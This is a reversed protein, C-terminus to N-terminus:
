QGPSGFARCAQYEDSGWFAELDRRRPLGSLLERAKARDERWCAIRSFAARNWNDPWRALVDDMAQKMLPWDLRPDKFGRRGIENWAAWFTRVYLGAGDTHKTRESARLAYAHVFKVPDNSRIALKGASIFHLGYSGPHRDIARSAITELEAITAGSFFAHELVLSDWEPDKADKPRHTSLYLKLGDLHERMLRRENATPGDTAVADAIVLFRTRYLRARMLHAAESGPHRAFWTAFHGDFESGDLEKVGPKSFVPVKLSEHLLTLKQVGSATRLDETLYRRHMDELEDFKQLNFRSMALLRERLRTTYEDAAHAEAACLALFVMIIQFLRFKRM